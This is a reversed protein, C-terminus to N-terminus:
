SFWSRAIGGFSMPLQNQLQITITKALEDALEQKARDSAAVIGSVDVNINITNGNAAVQQSLEQIAKVMQAESQRGTIQVPVNGGRLPIIAEPGAEGVMGLTPRNVLGGEAYYEMEGPFPGFSKGGLGPFWDPITMKPIIGKINDNWFEVIPSVAYNLAGIAADKITGGLGKLYAIGAAFKNGITTGIGTVKEILWDLIGGFFGKIAGGAGLLGSWIRGYVGVWFGFWASVFGVLGNWAAELGDWIAAGIALLGEWLKVLVDWIQQRYKIITFVLIAAAAAIIVVPFGAVTAGFSIGALMMGGIVTFIAGIVGWWYSIEGKLSMWMLTIGGVFLAIGAFAFALREAIKQVAKKGFFSFYTAVGALVASLVAVAGMIGAVFSDTKEKVFRFAGVVLIIGAILVAVPAGFLLFAAVGAVFALKVVDFAGKMGSEGDEGVLLIRLGNFLDSVVPINTMMEYLPSNVDALVAVMGGVVIAFTLALGIFFLISGGLKFLAANTGETGMQAVKAAGGFQTMVGVLITLLPVNKMREEHAEKEAETMGETTEWVTELNKKFNGLMITQKIVPSNTVAKHFKLIGREVFGVSTGLNNMGKFMQFIGKASEDAM